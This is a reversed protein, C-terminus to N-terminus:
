LICCLCLRWTVRRAGYEARTHIYPAHLGVRAMYAVLLDFIELICRYILDRCYFTVVPPSGNRLSFYTGRACCRFPSLPPEGVRQRDGHVLPRERAARRDACVRFM